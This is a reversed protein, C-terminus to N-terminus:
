YIFNVILFIDSNTIIIIIIVAHLLQLIFMLLGCYEGVFDVMVECSLNNNIYLTMNCYSNRSNQMYVLCVWCYNM